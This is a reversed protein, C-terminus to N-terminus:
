TRDLLAAVRLLPTFQDPITAPDGIRGGRYTLLENGHLSWEPLRGAVHEAVLGPSLVARPDKSVVRYARDFDEQGVATAGDGFLVRGFRSLAGREVVAM